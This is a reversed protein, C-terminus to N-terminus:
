CAPLLKHQNVDWITLGLQELALIQEVQHELYIADSVTWGKPDINETWGSGLIGDTVKCVQNYEDKLACILLVDVNM